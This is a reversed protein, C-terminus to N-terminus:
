ATARLSYGVGRVTHILPREESRDVEQRLRSVHVDVVNTQPDYHIDWVGQLLMTRTVVQGAHRALFELLRFERSTLNLTRKGRSAKQTLLDIQLDDVKLSTLAAQAKRRTLSEVRAALEEVAFPKGLYDDGGARLGAVREDVSDLASLVLVPTSRGAYRLARVLNLGDIGPLMRDTVIVDFNEALATDLGLRGDACHATDYGRVQMEGVIESAMEADDEILLMRTM